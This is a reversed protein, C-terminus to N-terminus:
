LYMKCLGYCVNVWENIKSIDPTSGFMRFEITGHISLRILTWNKRPDNYYGNDMAHQVWSDINEHSIPELNNSMLKYYNIREGNSNDGMEILEHVHKSLCNYVRLADNANPMGIHVHTGAIYCAAHLIDKSLSASIKAYRGTPDPYVDLPIEQGATDAFYCSFNFREELDQLEASASLLGDNVESIHYPGYRMELQCASLEYGFSQFKPQIKYILPLIEPTLPIIKGNRSTFSEREIGVHLTKESDYNFKQFFNDIIINNMINTNINNLYGM